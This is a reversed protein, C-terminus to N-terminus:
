SPTEPGPNVPNQPEQPMESADRPQLDEESRHRAGEQTPDRREDADEPPNDHKKSPPLWRSMRMVDM